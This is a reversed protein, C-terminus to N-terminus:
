RTRRLDKEGHAHSKEPGEEHETVEFMSTKTEASGSALTKPSKADEMRHRHPAACTIWNQARGGRSRVVSVQTQRCKELERHAKRPFEPRDLVVQQCKPEARGSSHRQSLNLGWAGRLVSRHNRTILSVKNLGLPSLPVDFDKEQAPLYTEKLESHLHLIRM